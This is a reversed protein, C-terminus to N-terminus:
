SPLNVNYTTSCAKCRILLDHLSDDSNIPSSIGKYKDIPSHHSFGRRKMEKALQNHRLTLSAPDFLQKAIYGNLTKKKNICGAFM